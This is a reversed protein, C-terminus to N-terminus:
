CPGAHVYLAAIDQKGWVVTPHQEARELQM